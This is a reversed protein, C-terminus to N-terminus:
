VEPIQSQIAVLFGLNLAPILFYVLLQVFAFDAYGILVFIILMVILFLPGAVAATVYAEAFLGMTEVFEQQAARNEYQLRSAKTRFYATLDGGSTITTIAGQLLDQLKQSPSRAIARRMATVVDMGHVELDKYIWAAERAAEGYVEQSALSRFIDAPIVGASAMATIYNAAYPLKADIDKARAKAKTKPYRLLMAYTGFYGFGPAVLLLIGYIPNVGFSFVMVFFLVVALLAALAMGAISVLWAQALYAEARVELRARRLNEELLDREPSREARKGFMQYATRQLVNVAM